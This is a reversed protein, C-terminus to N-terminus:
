KAPSNKRPRRRHLSLLRPMKALKRATEQRPRLPKMAVQARLQRHSNAKMEQSSSIRNKRTPLLRRPLSNKSNARLHLRVKEPSRGITKNSRNSLNTRPKLNITRTTNIRLAARSTKHNGIKRNSSSIRKNNSIRARVRNNSIRRHNSSTKNNSIVETRSRIQIKSKRTRRNSSSSRVNKM